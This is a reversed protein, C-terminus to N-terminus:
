YSFFQWTVSDSVHFSGPAWRSVLFETIIDLHCNTTPDEKKLCPDGVTKEEGTFVSLNGVFGFWIRGQANFSAVSVFSRDSLCLVLPKRTTLATKWNM